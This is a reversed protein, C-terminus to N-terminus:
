FLIQKLKQTKDASYFSQINTYSLNFSNIDIFLCINLTVFILNVHYKTDFVYKYRQFM